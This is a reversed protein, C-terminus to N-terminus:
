WGQQTMFKRLKEDGPNIQLARTWASRARERDGMAFYASGLRTWATANTPDLWLAERLLETAAAFSRRYVADLARKNKLAALRGPARIQERDKKRGTLKEMGDLLRRYAARKPASGLAAHALLMARDEENNIYAEISQYAIYSAQAEEKYEEQDEPHAKLELAQVLHRLRKIKVPWQDGGVRPDIGLATEIDKAAKMYNRKKLEAEGNKLYETAYFEMKPAKRAAGKPLASNFKYGLSIRQSMGLTPHNQLALDFAYKRRFLLGGGFSLSKDAMGVRFAAIGFAYETGIRFDGTSSVDAAMSLPGIIKYSAGARILLPLKDDTDGQSIAFANQAVVGFQLRETMLPGFQAGVDLGLLQDSSGGLSRRLMKGKLGLSLNPHFVGRWGHGVGLAMESYDFSGTPQNFEDRGEAGGIGLRILEAGWGGLRKKKNQAYAIYDYSAGEFLAARMLTVERGPLLGLGAPNYYLATVDNVVATHASGMALARAGAGFSFLEGPSGGQAHALTPLLLLLLLARM